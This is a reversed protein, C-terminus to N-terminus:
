ATTGAAEAASPVPPPVGVKTPDDTAGSKLWPDAVLLMKRMVAMLAKPGKLGASRAGCRVRQVGFGQAAPQRSGGHRPQVAILWQRAQIAQGARWQGSQCVRLNLGADAVVQDGRAVRHVDGLEARLVAQAKPGFEPVSRLGAVGEDHSRLQDLATELEALNAQTHRLPDGLIRLRLARGAATREGAVTTQALEILRESTARGYRRPAVARLQATIPEAGAAILAAPSPYAALLQLAAPATPNAFVPTFEPFLARVLNRIAPKYRAAEDRLNTYVRVLERYTRIQEDPGYVPRAEGSLLVWAITTTDLHDTKARM